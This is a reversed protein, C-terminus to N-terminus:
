HICAVGACAGLISGLPWVIQDEYWHGTAATQIGLALLAAIAVLAATLMGTRRSKRVMTVTAGLGGSIAAVVACIIMGFTSMGSPAFDAFGVYLDELEEGTLTLENIRGALYGLGYGAVGGVLGAIFAGTLLKKLANPFCECMM